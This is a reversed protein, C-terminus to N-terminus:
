PKLGVARNWAFCASSDPRTRLAELEALAADIEERRALREKVLREAGSRVNGAINEVWAAFRPSGAWHVEPALSLEIAVFGAEHFWRFLRTGIRPDGGLRGQLEGFREWVRDFAPCPPDFRVLTVDNEQAHARGGPKLIRRLERLAGLPDPVHELLYRCWARDFGRERTGDALPLRLADGRVFELSGPRAGGRPACALQEASLEVGLVRGRWAREAAEACLLGLGSGVELAVEDERLALWELFAANSLRNLLVLREQEQPTTGHIYTAGIAPTAPM